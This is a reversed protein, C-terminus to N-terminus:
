EISMFWKKLGAAGIIGKVIGVLKIFKRINEEVDFLNKIEMYNLINTANAKEKLMGFVTEEETKRCANL